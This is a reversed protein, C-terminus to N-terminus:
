NGLIINVITIIDAANVAGDKNADAGKKDFKESPSDMIYKLVEIFDETDVIDDGNADGAM